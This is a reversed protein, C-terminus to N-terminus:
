VGWQGLGNHGFAQFVDVVWQRKSWPRVSWQVSGSWWSTSQSAPRLASWALCDGAYTRPLVSRYRIDNRSNDMFGESMYFFLGRHAAATEPSWNLSWQLWQAFVLSYTTLVWFTRNERGSSEPSESWFGTGASRRSCLESLLCASLSSWGWCWFCWLLLQPCPAATATTGETLYRSVSRVRLQCLVEIMM